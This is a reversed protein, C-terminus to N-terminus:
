EDSNGAINGETSTPATTDKRTYEVMEIRSEKLANTAAKLNGEAMAKDYIKDLRDLRARAHAITVNELRSIYERHLKYFLDKHQQKLGKSAVNRPDYYTVHWPKLEIGFEEKITAIVERPAAGIALATLIREVVKVPLPANYKKKISNTEPSPTIGDGDGIKSIKLGM